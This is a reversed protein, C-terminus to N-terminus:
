CADETQQTNLAVEGSLSSALLLALLLSLTAHYEGRIAAHKTCNDM